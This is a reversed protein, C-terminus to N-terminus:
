RKEYCNYSLFKELNDKLREKESKFFNSTGKYEEGWSNEIKTGKDHLFDLKNLGEKNLRSYPIFLRRLNLNEFNEPLYKINTFKM